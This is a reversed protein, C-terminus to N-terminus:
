EVISFNNVDEESPLYQRLLALYTGDTIMAALVANVAATLAPHDLAVAIGQRAPPLTAASKELLNPYQFVFNSNGLYADVAGDLLAQVADQESAFTQLDVDARKDELCGVNIGSVPDQVADVATSGNATAVSKGCLDSLEGISRPNGTRVLVRSGLKSQTYAILNMQSSREATVNQSSVSVDCAHSQISSILQAFDTRQIVPTLDLRSALENAFAANYGVFRGDADV